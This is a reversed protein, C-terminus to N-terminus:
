RDSKDRKEMLAIVSGDHSGFYIKGQIAIPSTWVNIGKNVLYRWRESGDKRNIAYLHGDSSGVYVSHDTVSPSSFIAGNLNTKWRVEGTQTELSYLHDDNSGVYVSDGVLTASSFVAAGTKTKWRISGDSLSLGYVHQDYSGFVVLDQNAVPSTFIPQENESFSWNEVGTKRNLSVLKGENTGILLSESALFPSSLMGSGADFKWILKGSTADLAYVHHDFAGFYVVGDAITASSQQGGEGLEFVWKATGTQVDVAYFKNDDSGFYVLGDAVSPTARIWGGTEFEWKLEGTAQYIAHLKSAHGGVYVVGDVVVPSSEIVEGTEFEWEAVPRQIETIGYAANGSLNLRFRTWASPTAEEILFKSMPTIQIDSRKRLQEKIYYKHWAGFTILFRKGEGSHLDLAKEILGYHGANINSWGGEGILDNFHRDYPEMGNKVFDDYAQTHIVVPDNSDGLSKINRDANSQAEQMEAYQRQHTTQLESMTARRQDNMSKTWAACAIIEFELERTLPFVADTYEPFVRVRSETITGSDQFQQSADQLRDPPIETLIYDPKVDRILEKLHQIDFPGQQRHGGHVMGMVIVENKPNPSAEQGMAGHQGILGVALVFFLFLRHGNM